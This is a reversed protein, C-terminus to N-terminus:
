LYNLQFEALKKYVAGSSRLVSEYLTIKDARFNEVEDQPLKIEELDKKTLPKNFRALTIHINKEKYVHPKFEKLERALKDVLNDFQRNKGFLAWIMRFQKRPPTFIIDEFKFNIPTFEQSIEKIAEKIEPIKDEDVYGLFLVTIHLNDKSVIRLRPDPFLKLKSRVQDPLDFAIFLRKKM